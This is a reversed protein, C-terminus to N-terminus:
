NESIQEQCRSAVHGTKNCRFCRVPEKCNRIMHPGGCRFCQGKFQSPRTDSKGAGKDMTKVSVASVSVVGQHKSSLIRAHSILEDMKLGLVNPVQQLSM